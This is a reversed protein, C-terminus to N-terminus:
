KTQSEVQGVLAGLTFITEPSDDNCTIEITKKFVGDKIIKATCFTFNNLTELISDVAHLNLVTIEYNLTIM